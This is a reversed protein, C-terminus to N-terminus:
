RQGKISTYARFSHNKSGQKTRTFTTNKSGVNQLRPHGEATTHMGEGSPLRFRYVSEGGTRSLNLFINKCPMAPSNIFINKFHTESILASHSRLHLSVALPKLIKVSSFHHRSNALNKHSLKGLPHNRGSRYDLHNWVFRLTHNQKNRYFPRKKITSVHNRRINKVPNKM